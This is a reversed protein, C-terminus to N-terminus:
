RAGGKTLTGACWYCLGDSTLAFTMQDSGCGSCVAYKVDKSSNETM